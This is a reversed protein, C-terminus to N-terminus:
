FPVEDDIKTPSWSNEVPPQTGIGAPTVKPKPKYLTSYDRQKYNVPKLDKRWQGQADLLPEACIINAWTTNNYGPKTEVTLKSPVNLLNNVDFGQLETATFEKGRWSELFAKLKSPNGNGDNNFTLNFERDITFPNGKSDMVPKGYQDFAWVQFVLFVSNQTYEKISGDPQKFSKPLDELYVVDVCLADHEGYPCIEWRTTEKAMVPKRNQNPSAM